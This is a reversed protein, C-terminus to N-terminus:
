LTKSPKPQKKSRKKQRAAKARKARKEKIEAATERRANKESVVLPDPPIELALIEAPSWRRNPDPDRIEVTGDPRIIKM